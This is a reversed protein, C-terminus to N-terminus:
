GVHQCSLPVFPNWFHKRQTLSEKKKRILCKAADTRNPETVSWGRIESKWTEGDEIKNALGEIEVPRSEKISEVSM